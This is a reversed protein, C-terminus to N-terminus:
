DVPIQLAEFVQTEEQHLYKECRRPVNVIVTDSWRWRATMASSTTLYGWYAIVALM